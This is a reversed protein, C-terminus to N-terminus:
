RSAPPSPSPCKARDLGEGFYLRDSVIATVAASSALKNYIAAAVNM